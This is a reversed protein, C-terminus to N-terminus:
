CLIYLNNLCVRMMVGEPKWHIPSSWSTPLNAIPQHEKFKSETDLSTNYTYIEKILAEDSFYPNNHFHQCFFFCM